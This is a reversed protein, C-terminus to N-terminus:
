RFAPGSVWAVLSHRIGKTVPRVRHLQYSPFIIVTGRVKPAVLSGGGHFIELEGGEYKAPETLQMTISLKRSVPTGFDQHWDYHGQDSSEYRALQAAEGLGVLDFRFHKANADAVIDALRQYVPINRPEFQLWTVRSRRLKDKEGGTEGLDVAQTALNELIDLEGPEFVSTFTAAVDAPVAKPIIPMM